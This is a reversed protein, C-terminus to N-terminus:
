FVYFIKSFEFSEARQVGLRKLVPLARLIKSKPGARWPESSEHWLFSFSVLSMRLMEQCNQVSNHSFSGSLFLPFHWSLSFVQVLVLSDLFNKREILAVAAVVSLCSSHCGRVHRM